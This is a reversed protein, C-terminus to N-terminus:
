IISIKHCELVAPNFAPGAALREAGVREHKTALYLRVFQEPSPINLAAM